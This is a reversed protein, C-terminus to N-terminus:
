RRNRSGQQGSRNNQQIERISRIMQSQMYMQAQQFQQAQSLQRPARSAARNKSPVQLVLEMRDNGRVLLARTRSVEELRFGNNMTQGLRVYQQAPGTNRGGSMQSWQHFGRGNMHSTMMQAQVLYPNFQPQRTNSRIIAAKGEIIGVLIMDARGMRTNALPSRVQSFVDNSIIMNCANDPTPLTVREGSEEVSNKRNKEGSSKRPSDVVQKELEALQNQKSKALNSLVLIVALCFLILNTFILIKKM